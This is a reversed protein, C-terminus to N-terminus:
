KPIYRKYLTQQGFAENTISLYGDIIKINGDTTNFISNIKWGTLDHFYLKANEGEIVVIYSNSTTMIWTGQLPNNPDPAVVLEDDIKFGVITGISYCGSMLSMAIFSIALIGIVFIKKDKKM